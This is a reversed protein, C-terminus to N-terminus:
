LAEEHKGQRNLVLAKNVLLMGKTEDDPHHSLGEEIAQLKAIDDGLLTSLEKWGPAFTPSEKVIGELLARKQLPDRLGELIVYQKYTGSRLEGARERRLSYVATQVTFFGRPAM